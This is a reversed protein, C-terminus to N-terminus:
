MPLPNDAFMSRYCAESARLAKAAQTAQGQRAELAQTMDDFVRALQGLEGRDYSLDTRANLDGAAVRAAARGLAQIPRLIVWDAGVWAAVVVLVAVAGLILLMRGFAGDVEAWVAARAMGACVYLSAQPGSGVLPKFAFLRPVGDLDPLDATGEGEALATRIFPAWPLSRGVWRDQDPYHAVITGTRDILSLTTGHPPQAEALLQSHRNLELATAVIALIRNAADLVPYAVIISAKGTIAGVQYEGVAFTHTEMARQFWSRQSVNVPPIFPLASCVTIGDPAVVTLNAYRPYQQRLEALRAQCAHADRGRVDPLQAITVLLQRKSEILHEQRAAAAGVLQLAEERAKVLAQQRQEFGLHLTLGFGPLMAVLILLLFRVRLNSGFSPLMRWRTM